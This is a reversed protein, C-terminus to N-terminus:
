KGSTALILINSKANNVRCGVGIDSNGITLTSFSDERHLEANTNQRSPTGETSKRRRIPLHNEKGEDPKSKKDPDPKKKQETLYRVYTLLALQIIGRSGNLLVFLAHWITPGSTYLSLYQLM